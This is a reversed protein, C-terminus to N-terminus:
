HPLTSSTQIGPRRLAQLSSSKRDIGPSRKAVVSALTAAVRAVLDDDGSQRMSGDLVRVGQNEVGQNELTDDLVSTSATIFCALAASAVMTLGACSVKQPADKGADILFEGGCSPEVTAPGALPRQM